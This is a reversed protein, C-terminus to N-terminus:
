EKSTSKTFFQQEFILTNSTLHQQDIHCSGFIDMTCKFREAYSLQNNIHCKRKRVWVKSWKMKWGIYKEEGECNYQYIILLFFQISAFIVNYIKTPLPIHFSFKVSNTPKNKAIYTIWMPNYFHCSTSKRTITFNLINKIKSEFNPILTNLDILLCTM